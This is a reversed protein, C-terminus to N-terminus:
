RRKKRSRRSRSKAQTRKKSFVYIYLIDLIGITNVLGLIIFWALSGNRASKWMAILKWIAAWIMAVIFLVLLGTSITSIDGTTMFELFTM